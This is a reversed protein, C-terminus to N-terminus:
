AIRHAILHSNALVRTATGNSVNQAWQLKVDGATAGNVVLARVSVRTPNGAGLTGAPPATGLGASQENTLHDAFTTAGTGPGQVSVTGTAGAPGVVTAKIDGATAGDTYLVFDLAWVENAGAPILLEDDDQLATSSTVSETATKRVLQEGSSGAAEWKLGTAEGSDAVLVDGDAGVALRSATDAATAAIIDGKADFITAPIGGASIAADLEALVEEVDDGTFNGAVDLVSVSSADHADTADNLHNTLEVPTGALGQISIEDGGGDEHRASHDNHTTTSVKESDLENIAAQVDTAAVGGSPSNTVDSAAITGGSTPDWTITMEGTTADIFVLAEVFETGDDTTIVTHFYQDNAPRFDVDGVDAGPLTVAVTGSSANQANLHGKFELSGDAHLRFSFLELEGASSSTPQEWNNELIPEEGTCGNDGETCEPEWWRFAGPKQRTDKIQFRNKAIQRHFGPEHINAPM